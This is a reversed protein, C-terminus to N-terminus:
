DVFANRFFLLSVLGPIAAYFLMKKDAGGSFYSILAVVNIALFFLGILFYRKKKSTM